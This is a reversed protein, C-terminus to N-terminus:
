VSYLSLAIIYKIGDSQGLVPNKVGKEGGKKREFFATKDSKKIKHGIVLLRLANSTVRIHIIEQQLAGHCSM